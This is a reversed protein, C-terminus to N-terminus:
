WDKITKGNAKVHDMYSAKNTHVSGDIVSQIGGYKNIYSDVSLDEGKRRKSVYGKKEQKPEDGYNGGGCTVARMFKILEPDNWSKIETM